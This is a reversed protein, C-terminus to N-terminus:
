ENEIVQAFIRAADIVSVLCQKNDDLNNFDNAWLPDREYKEFRQYTFDDSITNILDSLISSEDLGQNLKAIVQNILENDLLTRSCLSNIYFEEMLHFLNDPDIISIKIEQATFSESVGAEPHYIFDVIKLDPMLNVQNNNIDRFITNKHNLISYWVVYRAKLNLSLRSKKDSFNIRQFPNLLYLTNNKLLFSDKILLRGVPLEFYYKDQGSYEAYSIYLQYYKNYQEIGLQQNNIIGLLKIHNYLKNNAHYIKLTDLDLKKFVQYLQIAIKASLLEFPEFDEFRMNNDFNNIELMRNLNANSYSLCNIWQLATLVYIQQLEHHDITSMALQSSNDWRKDKFAEETVGTVLSWFGSYLEQKNNLFPHLSHLTTIQDIYNEGNTFSNKMTELLLSLSTSPEKISNDNENRGIYSLVLKQQTALITELFIQKDEHNYNRDGAHWNRALYSMQNIEFTRPSEGFNLGLIYIMQFPINRVNALSTCTIAGNFRLRGKIGINDNIIQNVIPLNLPLQLDVNIAYIFKDIELQDEPHSFLTDRIKIVIHKLEDSSIDRYNTEDRYFLSRIDHTLEILMILKELLSVSAFDLNDYPVAPYNGCYQALSDEFVQAPLCLGLTLNHVLRKLSYLDADGINLERYDDVDYGFHINNDNLWKKVLEVDEETLALSNMITSNAMLDGFFSVPLRYPVNFLRQITDLVLIFRSNRNGTINVPIKIKKDLAPDSLYEEHFVASIYAAYQDIDPATLLIEDLSFGNNQIERAIVNFAVQVERMRTHCINVTISTDNEKLNIPDAYYDQHALLRYDPNIRNVINRIDIQIHELANKAVCDTAECTTADFNILNSLLLETLERSQHALNAVLPNGDILYLDELNLNPYGLVKRELKSRTSYDLLDGYYHNSIQLHYWSISLKTSLSALIQLQSPFITPLAFIFLHKPLKPPTNNLFYQYIDSFLIKHEIEHVHKLLQDWFPRQWIISTDNNWIAGSLLEDTRMFLYEFFVEKLQRALQYVKYIDIENNNSIYEQIISFNSESNSNIQALLLDYLIFTAQEFDFIEHEPFNDRYINEIVPGTLVVFDINACIGFKQTIKKKLWLSIATSPVIIQQVFFPSREIHQLQEIFKDFLSNDGILNTSHFFVFKNM